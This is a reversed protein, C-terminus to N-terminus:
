RPRAPNGFVTEGPLVDKVVVAGLGVVANAGVKIQERITVQPAIWSHEGIQVGGSVEAGAIVMARKGVRVNHAIHVLNDIKCGVELVTDDITGRDIAVHSGIHVEDEIRVGGLHPIRILKGLPTEVYGFGSGGIASLAGIVVDQGILVDNEIVTGHGIVSRAGVVSQGIVCLAGVTASPHIIAEEHISASPHVGPSLNSSFLEEAIVAFAARPDDVLLLMSHLPEFHARMEARILVTCSGPFGEMMDLSPVSDYKWFTVCESRPNSFSCIGAVYADEIVEVTFGAAQLKRALESVRIKQM